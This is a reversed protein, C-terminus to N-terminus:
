SVPSVKSVDEAFLDEEARHELHDKRNEDKEKGVETVEAVVKKYYVIFQDHSMKRFSTHTNAPSPLPHSTNADLREARKSALFRWRHAGIVGSLDSTDGKQHSNM